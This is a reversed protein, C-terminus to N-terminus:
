RWGSARGSARLDLGRLVQPGDTSRTGSGARRSRDQTPRRRRRAGPARVTGRPPALGAADCASRAGGEGVGAAAGPRRLSFMRAVPTALAGGEAAAWDLFERPDRLRVRRAGGEMAIVRDAAPLCRELRHEAIVVATGWEENLRRLLWILEDGAM